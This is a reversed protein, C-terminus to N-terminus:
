DIHAPAILELRSLAKIRSQAQRAKTAQARFRRVFDQMHKVERQQKEYNSQQEALRAAKLLEFQSYNGTFLEITQHHLYAISDVTEDLFERDHSILLLSGRYAKIWNALWVIADLDLHNTPEDLLLLDSPTMLAQALNLRIRWGGSFASLPRQFDPAQFGLGLMLQEARSKATYGDLSDLKEHLRAIQAYDGSVETEQIATLTQTLAKDGALVYTLAIESSAPAEQELHAIRTGPPYELSGEDIELEGLILKFLSTKGAGNAGIFGVKRGQHVTFSAGSFLLDTGRRLALNNLSLM